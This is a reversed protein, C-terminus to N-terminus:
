NRAKINAPKTLLEYNIDDLPRYNPFLKVAEPRLVTVVAQNSFYLELLSILIEDTISKNKKRIEKVLDNVSKENIINEYDINEILAEIAEISKNKIYDEVVINCSTFNPMGRATDGPFLLDCFQDFRM